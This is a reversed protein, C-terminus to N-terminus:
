REVIELEDPTFKVIQPRNMLVMLVLVRQDKTLSVVTGEISYFPNDRWRVRVITDPKLGEIPISRLGAIVRDSVPIPHLYEGLERVVSGHTTMLRIVGPTSNISAWRRGNEISVFAYGTFLPRSIFETLKKPNPIRRMPCFADYDQDNLNKVAKEEDSSYTHVCAWTM